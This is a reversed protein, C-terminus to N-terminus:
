QDDNQILSHSEGTVPNSCLHNQSLNWCKSRSVPVETKEYTTDYSRFFHGVIKNVAKWKMCVFGFGSNDTANRRYLHYELSTSAVPQTNDSCDNPKDLNLFGITTTNSCDCIEFVQAHLDSFLRLTLLNLMSSSHLLACAWRVVAFVGVCPQHM